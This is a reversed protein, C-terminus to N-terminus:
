NGANGTRYPSHAVPYLERLSLYDSSYVFEWFPVLMRVWSIKSAVQFRKEEHDAIEFSLEESRCWSIKAFITHRGPVVRVRVDDNRGIRAVEIGDLMVRYDRYRDFWVGHRTIHLSAM